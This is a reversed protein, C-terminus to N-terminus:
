CEKGNRKQQIKKKLLDYKYELIVGNSESKSAYHISNPEINKYGSACNTLTSIAFFLLIIKIIKM